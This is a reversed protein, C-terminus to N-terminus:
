LRNYVVRPIDYSRQNLISGIIEVGLDAVIRKGHNIVEYKLGAAKVVLLLGDTPKALHAVEISDLLPPVDLITCFFEDRFMQLLDLYKQSNLLETTKIRSTGNPVVMLNTSSVMTKFLTEDKLLERLGPEQGSLKIQPSKFNADVWAVKRDLMASLHRAVNFSVYSAGEGAVTGAFAVILGKQGTSRVLLSNALMAFEDEQEKTPMPFFDVNGLAELKKTLNQGSNGSKQMAQLIKSM